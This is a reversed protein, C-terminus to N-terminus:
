SQRRGTRLTWFFCLGACSVLSWSLWQPLVVTYCNALVPTSIPGIAADNVSPNQPTSVATVDWSDPPRLDLQSSVIRSAQESLVYCDVLMCQLGFVLLIIGAMLFQPPQIKM